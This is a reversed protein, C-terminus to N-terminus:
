ALCLFILTVAMAIALVTRARRLMAQAQRLEEPPENLPDSWLM